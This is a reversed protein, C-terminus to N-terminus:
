HPFHFKHEMDMWNQLSPAQSQLAVKKTFLSHDLSSSHQFWLCSSPFGFSTFSALPDLLFSCYYCLLTLFLLWIQWAFILYLNVFSYSCFLKTLLLSAQLSYLDFMLFNRLTSLHYATEADPHPLSRYVHYYFQSCNNPIIRFPKEHQQFLNALSIHYRCLLNLYLDRLCLLDLCNWLFFSFRDKLFFRPLGTTLCLQM